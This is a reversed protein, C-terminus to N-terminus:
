NQGNRALNIPEIIDFCHTAPRGHIALSNGEAHCDICKCINVAPAAFLIIQGIM